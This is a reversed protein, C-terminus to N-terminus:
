MVLRLLQFAVVALVYAVALGLAVSGAAVRGGFQRKLEAVTALCPTYALVFLLFAIAAARGHGGSSEDFSERLKSGLAGQGQQQESQDDTGSISYSQSMSGVVVEKAVFGTLLAASAHWDDFGAPAFVPAVADAVVGYASDHVDEVNGFSGAGATAPVSALLWLVIIVSIIISSAGRLFGWLRILVSRVLAVAKPWQYPPLVMAFPEPKLDRFVTHRLLVGIALILVISIVYMLFVVLGATSRFFAYALVLYVSLRASCSAFPILMGVMVRQRSDTLTRTAALGPLNCGFGVVIPLFARGDLGLARMLRDMVFAARALYGCDELLSLMIFMIGMPPIFTAVTIVGDLLGDVILGHVWGSTAGPGFLSMVADIGDTLWGRVTVDFWDQMPGALTTTAQFVLYMVALFVPVGLWPNLLVRDIRDSVTERGAHDLGLRHIIGAAWDFRRDAGERVMTALEEDNGAHMLQLGRPLPTGDFNGAVTRMLSDTGEGTRPDIAIVPVGDLAQSLTQPDIEDGQRRALDNMSLAVVVPRGLELVGALFYLSRVLNTADLVAVLADPTPMGDIGAAAQAAVREDPSQPLLSYTGPTDIIDWIGASSEPIGPKGTMDLRGREVLVTTGPANMVRAGAGLLANFLTSKGVNPNGVFVVRRATEGTLTHGGGFGHHCDADADASPARGFRIADFLRELRGRAPRGQQMDDHGCRQGDHQGGHQAHGCHVCHGNHGDPGTDGTHAPKSESDGHGCYAACGATNTSEEPKIDVSM